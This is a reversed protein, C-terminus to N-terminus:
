HAATRDCCPKGIGDDNNIGEDRPAHITVDGIYIGDSAYPHVARLLPVAASTFADSTHVVPFSSVLLGPQYHHHACQIGQGM